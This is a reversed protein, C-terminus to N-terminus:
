RSLKKKLSSLTNLKLKRSTVRGSELRESTLLSLRPALSAMLTMRRMTLLLSLSTTIELLLNSVAKGNLAKLTSILALAKVKVKAKTALMKKELCRRMWKQSTMTTLLLSILLYVSRMPTIKVLRGVLYKRYSTSSSKCYTCYNTFPCRLFCNPTLFCPLCKSTM